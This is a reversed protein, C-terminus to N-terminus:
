KSRVKVTNQDRLKRTKYTEGIINVKESFYPRKFPFNLERYIADITSECKRSVDYFHRHIYEHAEQYLDNKSVQPDNTIEQQHIKKLRNFAEHVTDSAEDSLVVISKQSDYGLFVLKDDLDDDLTRCLKAVEIVDSIYSSLDDVSMGGGVLRNSQFGVSQLSTRLKLVHSNVAKFAELREKYIIEYQKTKNNLRFAIFAGIFALSPTVVVRMIEVAWDTAM